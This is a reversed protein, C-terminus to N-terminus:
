RGYRRQWNYASRDLDQLIWEHTTQKIRAEAAPALDTEFTSFTSLADGELGASGVAKLQVYAESANELRKRANQLEGEPNGSSQVNSLYNDVRFSSELLRLSRTENEHWGTVEEGDFNVRFGTPM